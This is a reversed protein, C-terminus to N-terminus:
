KTEFSQDILESSFPGTAKGHVYSFVAAKFIDQASTIFVRLIVTVFFVGILIAYADPYKYFDIAMERGQGSDYVYNMVMIVICIIGPFILGALAQFSVAVGVVEGFKQKMLQSSAKLTEILSMRKEAIIPVVFYTSVAWAVDTAGAM